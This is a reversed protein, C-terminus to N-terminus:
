RPRFENVFHLILAASTPTCREGPLKDSCLPIGKALIAATAPAPVALEGHACCVTGEGTQVASSVFWCPRLESVALSIRLVNLVGQVRGVEHFHTEEVTCGHVSAEAQALIEYVERMDARVSEDVQLAEITALAEALGHHHDPLKLTCLAANFREDLRRRADEDLFVLLQDLISARSADQSLDLFLEPASGGCRAKSGFCEASM